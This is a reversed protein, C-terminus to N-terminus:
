DNENRKLYDIIRQELNDYELLVLCVSLEKARRIKLEQLNLSSYSTRGTVTGYINFKSSEIM